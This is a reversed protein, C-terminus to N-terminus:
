GDMRVEGNFHEGAMGQDQVLAHRWHFIQSRRACCSPSPKKRPVDNLCYALREPMQRLRAETQRQNGAGQLLHLYRVPNVAVQISLRQGCIQDHDLRMCSGPLATVAKRAIALRERNFLPLLSHRM